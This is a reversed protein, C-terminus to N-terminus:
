LEVKKDKKIEALLEAFADRECKKYYVCLSEGRDEARKIEKEAIRVRERVYRQDWCYALYGEKVLRYTTFIGARITYKVHEATIRREEIRHEVRAMPQIGIKWGAQRAKLCMVTEEGGAYDNGVRGYTLPFGGLEGFVEKRIAFCAGYPLEYQEKVHRFSKYPVTYNSWLGERGQLVVHESQEPFVTEIQGGVIATERHRNFAAVVAEVLKEDAVADDDMYLLIDGKANEGGCNRAYSIGQRPEKLVRVGDPLTIECEGNLVVIVEYDDKNATQNLASAVADTIGKCKGATCIIFSLTLKRKETAKKTRAPVIRRRSILENLAKQATARVGSRCLEGCCALTINPKKEM